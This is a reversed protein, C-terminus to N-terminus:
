NILASMKAQIREKTKQTSGLDIKYCGDVYILVDGESVDEPLEEFPIDVMRQDTAECVAFDGEFRDITYKLEM